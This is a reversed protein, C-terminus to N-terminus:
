NPNPPPSPVMADVLVDSFALGLSSITVAAVQACHEIARWAGAFGHRPLTGGRTRRLLAPPCRSLPGPETRPVGDPRPAPRWRRSRPGRRPARRPNAGRPNSLARWSCRPPESLEPIRCKETPQAPPPPPPPALFPRQGPDGLPHPLLPAQLRVAPVRGLPLRVATERGAPTRTVEKMNVSHSMQLLLRPERNRAACRASVWPLIQISQIMSLEGPGIHLTDQAPRPSTPTLRDEAWRWDAHSGTQQPTRTRSTPALPRVKYYFSVALRSIGLIGQVFYVLAIAMVEPTADIGFLRLGGEENFSVPAVQPAAGGEADGGAVGDTEKTGPDLQMAPMWARRRSTSRHVSTQLTPRMGRRMGGRLLPLVPAGEPSRLTASTGHSATMKSHHMLPTGLHFAAGFPLAVAALAGALKV